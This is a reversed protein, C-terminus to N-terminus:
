PWLPALPHTRHRRLRPLKHWSHLLEFEAILWFHLSSNDPRGAEEWLHYARVAIDHCAPANM